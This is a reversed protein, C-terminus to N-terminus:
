SSTVISTRKQGRKQSFGKADRKRWSLHSRSTPRRRFREPTSLSSKEDHLVWIETQFKESLQTCDDETWTSRDGWIAAERISGSECRTARRLRWMCHAIKIVLWEEYFGVPQFDQHLGDLLSQFEKEAKDGDCIPVIVHKAFLGRTVANFRAVSKGRETRPGTSRKANERNAELKM